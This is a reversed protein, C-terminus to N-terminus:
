YRRAYGRSWSVRSIQKFFFIIIDDIYILAFRYELGRLIHGMLRQISAGSNVLGFPMTLFEYLGNHTSFATKQQSDKQMQIQWFGSKLDLVSFVSAGALSDLADAVLPMPFSDVKTVKNVKRFDVCFRYSGDKKKVLVVPSSWPSVSEQIIGKELMEEVQRDIEKKVDPSVRYPRQKIPMADGTDIVHQVLSTRGLQDGPFAFVNRYKNFLNKFKVKEDDNLISNSLDPFESYDKPQQRDDSSNHEAYSPSNKGIEFPALDDDVREFDALKTRCFIKVPQAPPNVMRVPITADSSVKVLESVGFVSYRHPLDSKLTVLGYIESGSTSVGKPVSSLTREEPIIRILILSGLHNIWEPCPNKPENSRGHVSHDRIM